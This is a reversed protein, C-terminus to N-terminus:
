GRLALYIYAQDQPLRRRSALVGRHGVTLRSAALADLIESGGQICNLSAARVPSRAPRACFPLGRLGLVGGFEWAGM